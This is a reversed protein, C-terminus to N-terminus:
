KKVWIQVRRNKPEDKGSSTEVKAWDSGLPVITLRASAVGKSVLYDRAATAREESIRAPDAEKLDAAGHL